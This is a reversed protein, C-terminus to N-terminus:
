WSGGGGGGGGGGSSGGGSSGSSQSSSTFSSSFAGLSTAFNVASFSTAGGGDYWDPNPISVDKFAESWEKEVGFAIAYPLYEMFQQPSKRPSNHFTFREKDTVTLFLKFGELHDRAEYGVRTRREYTAIFYVMLSCGIVAFAISMQPLLVSLGSGIVIVGIIIFVAQKSSQRTEFFGNSRMDKKLDQRLQSLRQANQTQQQTDKKLQSLTVTNGVSAATNFLLEIVDKLFENEIEAIPKRLEIAYDDVEFVFLVKREIKKIKLYGQQALYVLGATIDKPDLRGDIMTGAYMPKFNKYPEYQAIITRGTKHYTRYRYGFFILCLLLFPIVLVFLLVIKFRELVIQEVGGTNIEQAVTLGFLAELDAAIFSISGDQNLQIDACRLSSGETGVYCAASTGLLGEPAYVRAGAAKIPVEWGNGTVNWYVEGRNNEFFSYGGTVTYAIEYVHEGRITVSPDGIKVTISKSTPIIEFPVEGGDLLVSKIEVEIYREKWFVRPQQPHRKEIDRFIGHRDLEGFDYVISEVVDFTGNQHLTIDSTFSTIQEAFVFTPLFLFLFFLVYKM